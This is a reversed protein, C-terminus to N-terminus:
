VFANRSGKGRDTFDNRERGGEREQGRVREKERERERYKYIYINREIERKKERGREVLPLVKGNKEVSTPLTSTIAPM